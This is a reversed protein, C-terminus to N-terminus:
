WVFGTYTMIVYILEGTLKNSNTKKNSPSSSGPLKDTASPIIHTATSLFSDINTRNDAVFKANQLGTSSIRTGQATVLLIRKSKPKPKSVVKWKMTPAKLISKTREQGTNERLPSNSGIIQSPQVIPPMHGSYKDRGASKGPLNIDAIVTRAVNRSTDTTHSAAASLGVKNDAKTLSALVASLNQQSNAKVIHMDERELTLVDGICTYRQNPHSRTVVSNVSDTADLTSKHPAPTLIDSSPPTPVCHINNILLPQEDREDDLLIQNNGELSTSQRNVEPRLQKEEQSHESGSKEKNAEDALAVICLKKDAKKAGQSSPTPMSPRHQPPISVFQGGTAVLADKFDGVPVVKVNSGSQGLFHDTSTHPLLPADSSAPDEDVVLIWM